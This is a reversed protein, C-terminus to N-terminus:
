RNKRLYVLPLDPQALVTPVVFAMPDDLYLFGTTSPTNTVVNAIGFRVAGCANVTAAPTAAVNGSDEILVSSDLAYLAARITGAGAGGAVYHFELRYYTGATLLNTFTYQAVLSGDRVQVARGTSLVLYGAINGGTSARFQVLTTTATPTVDCMVNVQGRCSVVPAADWTLSEASLTGRSAMRYAMGGHAVAVNTYELVASADTKVISTFPDGSGTDSTTPQVGNTGGEATNLLTPM